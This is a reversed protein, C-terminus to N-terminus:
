PVVQVVTGITAWNYLQQAAAFPVNVCGHSGTYNQGPTGLTTNTGPGYATRWPADHVYYGRDDFLLAYTVPSPAYYFRSGSPWPSVFTFPSYKGLIPYVGVPTPLAANGTTVLTTLFTQNGEYATLREHLLDIVMRKYTIGLLNYSESQTQGRGDTATVGVTYAGEPVLQRANDRGDWTVAVTGAPRMGLDLTRVHTVQGTPAIRVQARAPTSLTFSIHERTFQPNITFLSFQAAGLQLPVTSMPTTAPPTPRAMRTETPRVTPTSTPRRTVTALPASPQSPTEIPVVTATPIPHLAATTMPVTTHTARIRPVAITTAPVAAVPTDQSSSPTGAPRTLTAGIRHTSPRQASEVHYAYAAGGMVVLIAIVTPILRRRVM